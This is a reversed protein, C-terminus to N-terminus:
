NWRSTTTGPASRDESQCRPRSEPLGDGACSTTHSSSRYAESLPQDFKKGIAVMLVTREGRRDARCYKVNLHLLLTECWSDPSTFADRVTAFPFDVVAYIDGQLARSSEVSQLYLRPGLPSHALRDSLASYRDRLDAAPDSNPTDAAATAALVCATAILAFAAIPLRVHPCHPPKKGSSLRIHSEEEFQLTM